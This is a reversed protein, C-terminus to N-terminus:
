RCKGYLNVLNVMGFKYGGLHKPDLYMVMVEGQSGM